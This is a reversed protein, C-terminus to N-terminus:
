GMSQLHTKLIIIEFDFIICIIKGFSCIEDLLWLIEDVILNKNNQFM